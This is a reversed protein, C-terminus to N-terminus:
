TRIFLGFIQYNLSATLRKVQTVLTTKAGTNTRPIQDAIKENAADHM